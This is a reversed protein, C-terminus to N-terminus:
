VYLVMPLAHLPMRQAVIYFYYFIPFSFIKHNYITGLFSMIGIAQIIAVVLLRDRSNTVELM